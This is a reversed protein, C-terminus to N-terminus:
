PLGGDAIFHASGDGDRRVKRDTAVRKVLRELDIESDVGWIVEHVGIGEIQSGVVPDSKASRVIVNSHDPLRFRLSAGTEEYRRLGFDDFFDASKAIDDVCYVVTEIGLIAM